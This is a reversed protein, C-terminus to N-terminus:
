NNTVAIKGKVLFLHLVKNKPIDVPDYESNASVLTIYHKDKHKRIFKITRMEDTVVLYTEGWFILDKDAIKKCAVVEGNNYAPQMSNGYVRVAFTCDQFMPVDIFYDAYEKGDNFVKLPSATVDVDYFPVSTPSKGYLVVPEEAFSQKLFRDFEKTFKEKFKDSIPVRGSIMNSISEPSYGTGDAIDKNTEIVGHGKLYRAAKGLWNENVSERKDVTM